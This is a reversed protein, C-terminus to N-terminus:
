IITLLLRRVGLPDITDEFDRPAVGKGDCAPDPRVFHAPYRIRRGNPDKGPLKEPSVGWQAHEELGTNRNRRRTSLISGTGPNRYKFM